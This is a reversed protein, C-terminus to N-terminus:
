CSHRRTPPLCTSRQLKLMPEMPSVQLCTSSPETNMFAPLKQSASGTKAKLPKGQDISMPPTIVAVYYHEFTFCIGLIKYFDSSDYSTNFRKRHWLKKKIRLWQKTENRKTEYDKGRRGTWLLHRPQKNAISWVWVCVVTSLVARSSPDARRLSRYRVVCVSYLVFM